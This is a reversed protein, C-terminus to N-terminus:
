RAATQATTLEAHLRATHPGNADPEAIAVKAILRLLAVAPDDVTFPWRIGAAFALEAGAAALFPVLRAEIDAVELQALLANVEHATRKTSDPGKTTWNQSIPRTKTTHMGSTHGVM